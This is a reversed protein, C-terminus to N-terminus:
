DNKKKMWEKMKSIREMLVGVTYQVRTRPVCIHTLHCTKRLAWVCPTSDLNTYEDSLPLEIHCACIVSWFRCDVCFVMCSKPGGSLRVLPCGQFNEEFCFKSNNRVQLVPPLIAHTIIKVTVCSGWKLLEQQKIWRRQLPIVRFIQRNKVRQTFYLSVPNWCILVKGSRRQANILSSLGREQGWSLCCVLMKCVCETRISNRRERWRPDTYAVEGGWM